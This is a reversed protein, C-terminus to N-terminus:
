GRFMDTCKLPLKAINGMTITKRASQLMGLEDHLVRHSDKDGAKEMHELRIMMKAFFYNFEDNVIDIFTRLIQEHHHPFCAAYDKTNTDEVYRLTTFVHVLSRGIIIRVGLQVPDRYVHRKMEECDFKKVINLRYFEDPNGLDPSAAYKLQVVAPLPNPGQSIM